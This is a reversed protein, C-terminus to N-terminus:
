FAIHITSASVLPGALAKQNLSPRGDADEIQMVVASKRGTHRRRQQPRMWGRREGSMDSSVITADEQRDIAVVLHHNVYLANCHRAKCTWHCETSEAALSSVFDGAHQSSWFPVRRRPTRPRARPTVAVYYGSARRYRHLAKSWGVCGRCLLPSHTILRSIGRSARRAARLADVGAMAITPAVPATPMSSSCQRSCRPKGSADGRTAPFVERAFGFRRLNDWVQKSWHGPRDSAARRDRRLLPRTATADHRDFELQRNRRSRVGWNVESLGFLASEAAIAFDVACLQTFAAGYCYGNVM